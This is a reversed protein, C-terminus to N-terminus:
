SESCTKYCCLLYHWWSAQLLKTHVFSILIPLDMEMLDGFSCYIKRFVRKHYKVLDSGPDQLRWNKRQIYIWITHPTLVFVWMGSVCCYPTCDFASTSTDCCHIHSHYLIALSPHLRACSAKAGSNYREGYRIM